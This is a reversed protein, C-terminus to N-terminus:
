YDLHRMVTNALLIPKYLSHSYRCGLLDIMTTFTKTVSPFSCVPKHPNFVLHQGEHRKRSWATFNYRKNNRASGKTPKVLKGCYASHAPMYKSSCPGPNRHGCHEPGRRRYAFFTPSRTPVVSSPPSAGIRIKENPPTKSVMANPIHATLLKHYAVSQTAHIIELQTM